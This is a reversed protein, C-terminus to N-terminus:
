SARLPTAPAEGVQHAVTPAAAQFLLDSLPLASAFSFSSEFRLTGPTSVTEAAKAGSFEPRLKAAPDSGSIPHRLRCLSARGRNLTVSCRRWTPRETPSVVRSPAPAPCRPCPRLSLLPSHDRTFWSRKKRAVCESGTRTNGDAAVSAALCSHVQRASSELISADIPACSACHLRDAIGTTLATRVPRRTLAGPGNGRLGGVTRM